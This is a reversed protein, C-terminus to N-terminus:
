RGTSRPRGRDPARASGRATMWQIEYMRRRGFAPSRSFGQYAAAEAGQRRGVVRTLVGVVDWLLTNDTPHQIDSEVVTTDVRLKASDELGHAVAAQVLLDNIAKLTAPTLRNFGILAPAV